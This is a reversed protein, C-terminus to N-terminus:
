SPIRKVCIGSELVIKGEQLNRLLNTLKELANNGMLLHLGVPPLGQRRFRTLVKELFAIGAATQDATGTQELGAHQLLSSLKHTTILHSIAADDAWPVPFYLSSPGASFIDYYVFRGGPQLVRAIGTYFQEKEAINMQVHQTWVVEFSGPPFPLQLANGHIFKTRNNLGTLESLRAATEVYAATLDIGTVMCGYEDALMRSPGGLGCGVDLVRTGPQLMLAAALERSVEQGRVHFEDVGALEKRTVQEPNIGANKLATLIRQFLQGQTYHSEVPSQM